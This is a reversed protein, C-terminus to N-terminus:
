VGQQVQGGGEGKKSYVEEGQEKGGGVGTEETCRLEECMYTQIEQFFLFFFSVFSLFSQRCSNLFSDTERQGRQTQTPNDHTKQTIATVCCAAGSLSVNCRAEPRQM